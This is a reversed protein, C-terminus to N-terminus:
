AGTSQVIREYTRRWMVLGGIILGAVVIAGPEPVQVAIASPTAQPFTTGFQSKWFDYDEQDVVGPTSSAPNQNPLPTSSGISDRWVTYDALNVTGDLNYDGPLGATAAIEDIEFSSYFNGFGPSLVAFDLGDIDAFDVPTGDYTTFSSFPMQVVYGDDTIKPEFAVSAGRQDDTGFGSFATLRLVPLHDPEGLAASGKMRITIQTNGDTTLDANLQQAAVNEIIAGYRLAVVEFFGQDHSYQLSGTAGAVDLSGSYFAFWERQGGLVESGDLGSQFFRNLNVENPGESLPGADFSDIMVALTSAAMSLFLMMGLGVRAYM